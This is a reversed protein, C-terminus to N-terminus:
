PSCVYQVASLSLSLSLSLPNVQTTGAFVEGFSGAGIKKTLEIEKAPLLYQELSSGEATPASGSAEEEGNGGDGDGGGGSQEEQMIRALLQYESVSIAHRWRRKMREDLYRRVSWGGALILTAANVLLLVMGLAFDSLGLSKLSDNEIILAGFFTCVIQHAALVALLNTRGNLFPSAERIYLAYLFSLFFGM